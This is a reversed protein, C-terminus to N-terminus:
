RLPQVGSGRLFGDIGNGTNICVVVSEDLNVDPALEHLRDLIGLSVAGSPECSLNQETARKVGLRIENERAAFVRYPTREAGTRDPSRHRSEAVGNERLADIDVWIPGYLMKASSDPSAVSLPVIACHSGTRAVYDRLENCLIGAGFPVLCVDPLRGLQAHIEEIIAVYAPVPLGETVNVITSSRAGHARALIALAADDYFGEALDLEVVIASRDLEELMQTGRIRRGTSTPGLEWAAFGRPVFIVLAHRPRQLIRCLSIATNGYSIAVIAAEPDIVNKACESLRDKFTGNPQVSEDKVYLHRVGAFPRVKLLPTM